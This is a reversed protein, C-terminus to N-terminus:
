KGGGILVSGIHLALEDSANESSPIHVASDCVELFPQVSASTGVAVGWVRAHEKRLRSVAARLSDMDREVETSEADTILVVDADHLSSEDHILKTAMDIPPVFRTGGGVFSTMEATIREATLLKPARVLESSKAEGSFHVVGFARGSEMCERMVNFTVAKAMENLTFGGARDHMSSSEDICLVLPGKGAKSIAQTGTQRNQLLRGEFLKAAQVRKMVPHRFLARETPLAQGIDRGMRIGVVRERGDATVYAAKAGAMTTRMRGALQIIRKLAKNEAAAAVFKRQEGADMGAIGAGHMLLKAEEMSELASSCAARMAARAGASDGTAAVVMMANKFIAAGVEARLQASESEDLSEGFADIIAVKGTVNEPVNNLDLKEGLTRSIEAAGVGALYSDGAAVDLVRQWEPLEDAVHHLEGAWDANQNVMAREDCMTGKIRAFLERVFSPWEGKGDVLSSAFEENSEAEWRVLERTYRGVEYALDRGDVAEDIASPENNM